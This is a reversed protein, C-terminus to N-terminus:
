AMEKWAGAAKPDYVPAEAYAHAIEGLQDEWGAEWNSTRAQYRITEKRMIALLLNGLATNDTPGTKEIKEGYPNQATAVYQNDKIDVKTVTWGRRHIDDYLERSPATLGVFAATVDTM